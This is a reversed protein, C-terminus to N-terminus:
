QGAGSAPSAALYLLSPNIRLVGDLYAAAYPAGAARDVQVLAGPSVGWHALLTRAVLEAAERESLGQLSDRRDEPWREGRGEFRLALQAGADPAQLLDSRPDVGRAAVLAGSSELPFLVTNNAPLGQERLSARALERFLEQRVAPPEFELQEPPLLLAQQATMGARLPVGIDGCAALSLLLALALASRPM